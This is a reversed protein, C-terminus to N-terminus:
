QQQQTKRFEIFVPCSSSITSLILCNRTIMPSYRVIIKAFHSIKSFKISFMSFVNNFRLYKPIEFTILKNKLVYLHLTLIAIPCFTFIIKATKKRTFILAKNSFYQVHKQSKKDFTRNVEFSFIKPFLFISFNLTCSKNEICHFNNKNYYADM